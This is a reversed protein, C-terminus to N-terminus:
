EGKEEMKKSVDMLAQLAPIHNPYKDLVARFYRSAKDINGSRVNYNNTFNTAINMDYVMREVEEKTYGPIKINAKDTTHSDYRDEDALLGQEICVGRLRSGVTPIALFFNVWDFGIRNITEMTEIRHEETEGPLGVVIFAHISIGENRLCSVAYEVDKVTHNKNIIKRLVYDSGSEVALSVLDVGALKMAAVTDPTIAKVSVGNPFEVRINLDRIGYLIAIARVRDFFFNDDEILLVDAKTRHKLKRITKVADEASLMRVAKGHIEGNACFVCKYPCGRSTHIPIEIHGTGHEKNQSRRRYEQMEVVELSEVPVLKNVDEELDLKPVIGDALSERTVWASSKEGQLAKAIPVEGEGYCCADIEPIQELIERYAHTALGGGIVVFGINPNAKAAVAITELYPWCTDFLASIAVIEFRHLCTRRIHMAIYEKFKDLPLPEKQHSLNRLAWTNLDLVSVASFNGWAYEIISFVGYPLTVSPEQYRTIDRTNWDEISFSPPIIFLVSKKVKGSEM